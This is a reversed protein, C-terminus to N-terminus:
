ELCRGGESERKYRPCVLNYGSHRTSRTHVDSNRILMENIYTPTLDNNRKYVLSCKRISIEDRIPIWKLKNFMVETREKLDANLIVRAARKQLKFIKDINESSGWVTSGYLM